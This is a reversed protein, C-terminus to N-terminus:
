LDKPDAGADLAAQVSGFREQEYCLRQFPCFRLCIFTERGGHLEREEAKPLRRAKAYEVIKTARKLMLDAYVPDVDWEFELLKGSGRDVMLIVGTKCGTLRCYASVQAVYSDVKDAWAGKRFDEPKVSKVDLIASKGALKHDVRGTFDNNESKVRFEAKESLQLWTLAIEIDEHIRDGIEAALAWHPSDEGIPDPTFGMLSMAQWRACDKLNSARVRMPAPENQQDLWEELKEAQAFKKRLADRRYSSFQRRYAEDERLRYLHAELKSRVHDSERIGSGPPAFPKDKQRTRRTTLEEEVPEPTQLDERAFVSIPIGM